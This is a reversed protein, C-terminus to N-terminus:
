TDEGPSEGAPGSRASRTSGAPPAALAIVVSVGGPSRARLALRATSVLAAHAAHVVAPWTRWVIRTARIAAPPIAEAARVTDPPSLAADVGGANAILRRPRPMTAQAVADPRM